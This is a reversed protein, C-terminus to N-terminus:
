LTPLLEPYAPAHAAQCLDLWPLLSKVQPTYPVCQKEMAFFRNYFKAHNMSDDHIIVVNEYNFVNAGVTWNFSGTWIKHDLIAFKDHMLRQRIFGARTAPTTPTTPSRPIFVPIGSAHLLKVKSYCSNSTQEDSIIRVQVRRNHADILAKIINADSIYYIAALITHRTENIEKILRTTPRDDPAFLTEVYATRTTFVYSYAVIILAIKKYFYM